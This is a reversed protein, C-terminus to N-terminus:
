LKENCLTEELFECPETEFKPHPNPYKPPSNIERKNTKQKYGNESPLHNTRLIEEERPQVKRKYKPPKKQGYANLFKLFTLNSIGLRIFKKRLNFFFPSNLNKNTIKKYYHLLRYKQM